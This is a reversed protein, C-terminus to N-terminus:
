LLSLEGCFEGLALGIECVWFVTGGRGVLSFGCSVGFLIADKDVRGVALWLVAPGSLGEGGELYLLGLRTEDDDEELVWFDVLLLPYTIICM